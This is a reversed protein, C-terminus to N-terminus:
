EKNKKIEWCMDIGVRIYNPLLETVAKLVGEFHIDHGSIMGGPKVKPAWAEIDQKTSEYAHDADIFVFDLSNDLVKNAVEWSIGQLVTVRNKFQLMKSEFRKKIRIHNWGKYQVGGKGPPLVGFYDVALLRLTPNKSLLHGTTVGHSVGIEAGVTYGRQKIVKDLWEYRKGDEVPAPIVFGEPTVRHIKITKDKVM